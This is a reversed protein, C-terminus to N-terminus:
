DHERRRFLLTLMFVLMSVIELALWLAFNTDYGTPLSNASNTSSEPTSIEDPQLPQVASGTQEATFSINLAYEVDRQSAAIGLETDRANDIDGAWRWELMYEKESENNLDAALETLDDCSVWQSDSGAIYGSDDSLKFEMPLNYANEDSFQMVYKLPFRSTNKVTFAYEGHSNPAVIAKGGFAPNSFIDVGKLESWRQGTSDQIVIFAEDGTDTDARVGTIVTSTLFFSLIMLVALAVALCIPTTSYKTRTVQM